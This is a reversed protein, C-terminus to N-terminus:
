FFHNLCCALHLSGLTTFSVDHWNVAGPEDLGASAVNLILVVKLLLESGAAVAGDIKCLIFLRTLSKYGGSM